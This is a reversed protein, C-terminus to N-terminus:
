QKGLNKIINRERESLEWAYVAAKEAAAKEAAAKESLLFGGGFITKGIRRQSDLAGVPKYSGHAIRLDIGAKAIKGLLAPSTVEAPYSYMPLGPKSAGTQAKGLAEALSGAVWIGTGGCDLNTIFSTSVSAKNAYEISIGTVVYTTEEALEMAGTALTLAPAFLFYKIGHAHYFRRIKTMMSFPPNDLVLCGEPYNAREFDGGPYFPRVIEVGSLSIVNDNVWQRVTQYIYDPTYCDDTTKKAEFKQVFAEYDNFTEARGRNVPRLIEEEGFINLQKVEM